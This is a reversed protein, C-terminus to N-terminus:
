FIFKLFASPISFSGPPLPGLSRGSGPNLILSIETSGFYIMNAYTSQVLFPSICTCKCTIHQLVKSVLKYVLHFFKANKYVSVM